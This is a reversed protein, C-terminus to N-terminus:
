YKVFIALCKCNSLGKLKFSMSINRNNVFHLTVTQILINSYTQINKSNGPIGGSFPTGCHFSLNALIGHSPRLPRTWKSTKHHVAESSPFAALFQLDALSKQRLCHTLLVRCSGLQRPVTPLAQWKHKRYRHQFRMRFPNYPACRPTAGDRLKWLYCRSTDLIQSRMHFCCVISEHGFCEPSVFTTHAALLQEATTWQDATARCLCMIDMLAREEKDGLLQTFFISNCSMPTWQVQRSRTMSISRIQGQKWTLHM